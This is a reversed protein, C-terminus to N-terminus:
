HPGWRGKGWVGERHAQTGQGELHATTLVAGPRLARSLVEALPPSEGASTPVEGPMGQMTRATPTSNKNLIPWRGVGERLAAHCGSPMPSPWALLSWVPGAWRPFERTPM